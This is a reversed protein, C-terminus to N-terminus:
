HVVTCLTKAEYLPAMNVRPILWEMMDIGNECFIKYRSFDVVLRRVNNSCVWRIADYVPYLSQRISSIRVRQHVLHTKIM